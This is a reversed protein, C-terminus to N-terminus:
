QNLSPDRVLAAVVEDAIRAVQPRPSPSALQIGYTLLQGTFSLTWRIPSRRDPQPNWPALGTQKPKMMLFLRAKAEISQIADVQPSAEGYPLTIARKLEERTRSFRTMNDPHVNSCTHASYGFIAAELAVTGSHTYIPVKNELLALSSVNHIRMIGELGHKRLLGDLIEADGSYFESAPHPRIAWGEPNLAIQSFMFDAWEFYTNFLTQRWGTSGELPLQSADRFAHLFLVKRGVLDPPLEITGSFALSSDLDSFSSGSFRKALYKDVGRIFLPDTNVNELDVSSHNEDQTNDTILWRDNPNLVWAPSNQRIAASLMSKALLYSTEALVIGDYCGVIKEAVNIKERAEAFFSKPIHPSDFASIPCKRVFEDILGRAILEDGEAFDILACVLESFEAFQVSSTSSPTSSKDLPLLANVSEKEIVSTDFGIKSFLSAFARHQVRSSATGYHFLALSRPKITERRNIKRSNRWAWGPVLHRVLM